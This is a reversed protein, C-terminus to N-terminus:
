FESNIAKEFEKLNSSSIRTRDLSIADTLYNLDLRYILYIEPTGERDYVLIHINKAKEFKYTCVVKFTKNLYRAQPTNRLNELLKKQTM